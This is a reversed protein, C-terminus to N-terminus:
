HVILAGPRRHIGEVMKKAFARFQKETMQQDPPEPAFRGFREIKLIVNFSEGPKGGVLGPVAAVYVWDSHDKTYPNDLGYKKDYASAPDSAKRRVLAFHGLGEQGDITVSHSPKIRGDLPLVEEADALNSQLQNIIIQRPNIAGDSADGARFNIVIEPHESVSFAIANQAMQKGGQYFGYPLCSGPKDPISFPERTSYHQLFGQITQAPTAQSPLLAQIIRHNDLYAYFHTFKGDDDAIAQMGLVPKYFRLASAKERLHEAYEGKPDGRSDAQWQDADELILQREREQKQNIKEMILKLSDPTTPQSLYILQKKWTTGDLVSPDPIVEMGWAPASSSPLEWYPNFPAMHEPAIAAYNVMGPVQITHYGICETRWPKETDVQKTVSAQPSTAFWGLCIGLTASRLSKTLISKLRMAPMKRQTVPM